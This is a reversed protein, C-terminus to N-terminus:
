SDVGVKEITTREPSANFLVGETSSESTLLIMGDYGNRRLLINLRRLSTSAYEGLYALAFEDINGLSMDLILYRGQTTVQYMTVDGETQLTRIQDGSQTGAGVYFGPGYKNAIRYRELDSNPNLVLNPNPSYHWLDTITGEFIFIGELERGEVVPVDFNGDVLIFPIAPLNPPRRLLNPSVNLTPKRFSPAKLNGSGSTM